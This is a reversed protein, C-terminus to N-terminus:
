KKQKKREIREEKQIMAEYELKDYDEDIDYEGKIEKHTSFKEKVEALMKELFAM